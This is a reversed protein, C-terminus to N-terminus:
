LWLFQCLIRQADAQRGGGRDVRMIAAAHHQRGLRHGVNVLVRNRVLLIQSGGFRGSLGDDAGVGSAFLDELRIASAVLGRGGPSYRGSRPAASTIRLMAIPTDLKMSIRSMVM